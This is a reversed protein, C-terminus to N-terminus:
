KISNDYIGDKYVKLVACGGLFPHATIDIPHSGNQYTNVETKRTFEYWGVVGMVACLFIILIIEVATSQGKKNMNVGFLGFIM